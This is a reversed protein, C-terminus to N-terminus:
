QLNVSNETNQPNNHKTAKVIPDNENWYSKFLKDDKKMLLQIRKHTWPKTKFSNENKPFNIYNDFLTSIQDDFVALALWYITKLYKLDNMFEDDTFFKHNHEFPDNQNIHM